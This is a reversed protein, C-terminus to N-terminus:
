FRWVVGLSLREHSQTRRETPILSGESNTTLTARSLFTPDWDVSTRIQLRRGIRVDFGGGVTAALGIDSFRDGESLTAPRGFGTSNFLILTDPLRTVPMPTYTINAGSVRFTSSSRVAGVLAHAFLTTRKTDRVTVVPGMTFYLASADDEWNLSVACSSPQCYSATGRFPDFYGSVSAKVGLHPRLGREVSFEFGYPGSGNSFFPSKPQDRIVAYPLDEVFDINFSYGVFLRTQPTFAADQGFAAAPWWALAAAAVVRWRHAM